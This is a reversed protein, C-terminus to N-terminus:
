ASSLEYGVGNTLNDVIRLAIAHQRALEDRKLRRRRLCPSKEIGEWAAGFASEGRLIALDHAGVHALDSLARAADDRVRHSCTEDRLRRLAVRALARRLADSAPELSEDLWRDQRIMRRAMTDAMGGKARGVLRGSVTVTVDPAHRIPADICRLAAIFARDEGLPHPPIGGAAAWAGATVAISAGSHETHRPWPDLPDPDIIDFIRDLVTAYAIEAGERRHLEEPIARAEEPDIVARGCVVGVGLRFAALTRDVWNSAVVGDADTAFLIGNPGAIAGALDMAKRRAAGAHAIAPPFGCHEVTLQFPWTRTRDTVLKATGDTCNNLLLVVHDVTRGTQNALAQLCPIIRDEENRVPIAAVLVSTASLFV